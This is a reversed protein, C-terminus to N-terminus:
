CPRCSLTLRHMEQSDDQMVLEGQGDYAAVIYPFDKYEGDKTIRLEVM